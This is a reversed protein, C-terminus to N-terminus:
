GVPTRHQYAAASVVACHFAFGLDVERAYGHAIADDIAAETTLRTGHAPDTFLVEIVEWAVNWDEGGIPDVLHDIGGYV